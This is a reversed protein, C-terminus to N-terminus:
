IHMNVCDSSLLSYCTADVRSLVRPVDQVAAGNSYLREDQKRPFGYIAVPAVLDAALEFLESQLPTPEKIDSSQELMACLKRIHTIGNSVPENDNNVAACCDDQEDQKVIRRIFGGSCKHMKCSHRPVFFSKNETRWLCARLLDRM